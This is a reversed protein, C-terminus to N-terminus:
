ISCLNSDTGLAVICSSRTIIARTIEEIGLPLEMNQSTSNKNQKKVEYTSHLYNLRQIVNCVIISRYHCEKNNQFLLIFGCCCHHPLVTGTFCLHNDYHRESPDLYFRSHCFYFIILMKTYNLTM